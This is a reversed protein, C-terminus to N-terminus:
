GRASGVAVAASSPRASCSCRSEAQSVCAVRAVLDPALQPRSCETQATRAARSPSDTGSSRGAGFSKVPFSDFDTGFVDRGDCVYSTISIGANDTLADARPEGRLLEVRAVLVAM